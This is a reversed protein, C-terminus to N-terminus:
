ALIFKRYISKNESRKKAIESKVDDVCQRLVKELINKVEIEKSCMTRVMRLSRKEVSLMKKLRTIIDEYRKVKPNSQLNASIARNQGYIGGATLNNATRKGYAPIGTPPRLLGTGMQMAATKPRGSGVFMNAASL